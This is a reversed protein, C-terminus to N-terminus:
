ISCAFKLMNPQKMREAITKHRISFKVEADPIWSLSHIEDIINKLMNPASIHYDKVYIRSM